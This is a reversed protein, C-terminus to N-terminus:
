GHLGVGAFEADRVVVVALSLRERDDILHFPLRAQADRRFPSGGHDQRQRARLIHLGHPGRGALFQQHQRRPEAGFSGPRVGRRRNLM